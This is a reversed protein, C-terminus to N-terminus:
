DNSVLLTLPEPIAELMESLRQLRDLHAASARSGKYASIYSAHSNIFQRVNLIRTARDLQFPENPQPLRELLTEIREILPRLEKATIAEKQREAAETIARQIIAEAHDITAQGAKRTPPKPQEDFIAPYGDANIKLEYSLGAWNTVTHTGPTLPDPQEGEEDAPIFKFYDARETLYDAMDYGKARQDATITPDDELMTSIRFRAMEAMGEARKAWKAFVGGSKSLDPFLVVNRGELVKLRDPTLYSESGTALCVFDSFFPTAIVATKPAEFLAVTKLPHKDLLHEGFLCDVKSPQERYAQLWEPLPEGKQDYRYSLVSHIWTTCIKKEGDRTTYKRTHGNPEFLKIQGARIRETGDIFWFVTAGEWRDSTGLYYIEILKTVVDNPFVSTLFGVFTNGDYGTLSDRFIDTPVDVKPKPPPAVYQHQQRTWTSGQGRERRYVDKAYGDKYPSHHYGCSDEKNCRGYEEPLDEGTHTDIYPVFSRKGRCSPNPCNTRDSPTRYPKLKYRYDMMYSFFFTKKVSVLNVLNV